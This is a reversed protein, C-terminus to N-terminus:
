MSIWELCFTSGENTVSTTIATAQNSIAKLLFVDGQYMYFPWIGSSGAAGASGNTVDYGCWHPGVSVNHGLPNNTGTLVWVSTQVPATLSTITTNVFYRVKYWGPTHVTFLTPFSLGGWMSDTDFDTTSFSITALSTGITAGGATDRARCIPKTLLFTCGYALNNMDTQTPVYGAPLNPITPLTMTM